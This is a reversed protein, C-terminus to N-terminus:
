CRKSSVFKKSVIPYHQAWSVHFNGNYIRRWSDSLSLYYKIRNKAARIVVEPVLRCRARSIMSIATLIKHTPATPSEIYRAYQTPLISSRPWPTEAKEVLPHPCTYTYFTLFRRRDNRVSKQFCIVTNDNLFFNHGFFIIDVPRKSGPDPWYTVSKPRTLSFWRVTFPWCFM